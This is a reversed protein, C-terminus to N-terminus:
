NVTQGDVVHSCSLIMLVVIKEGQSNGQGTKLTLYRQAAQM